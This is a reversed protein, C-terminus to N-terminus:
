LENDIGFTYERVQRQFHQVIGKTRPTLLGGGDEDGSGTGAM